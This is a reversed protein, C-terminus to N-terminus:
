AASMIPTIYENGMRFQTDHGRVRLRFDQGLGVNFPVTGIFGALSAGDSEGVYHWPGKYFTIGPGIPNSIWIGYHATAGIDVGATTTIEVQDGASDVSWEVDTFAAATGFALPAATHAAQGLFQLFGNLQVFQNFGSLHFVDGLRNTTPTNDAYLKWAEQVAGLQSRWLQSSNTMANRAAIQNDSNPNVPVTRNRLYAGSRNRSYTLGAVSGSVASAIHSKFLAM